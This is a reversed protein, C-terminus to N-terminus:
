RPSRPVPSGAHASDPSREPPPCALTTLTEWPPWTVECSELGGPTPLLHPPARPLAGASPAGGEGQGCWDASRTRRKRTDRRAERVAFYLMCTSCALLPWSLGACWVTSHGGSGPGHAQWTTHTSAVHHTAFVTHPSCPTHGSPSHMGTSTAPHLGHRMNRSLQM